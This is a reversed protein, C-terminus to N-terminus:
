QKNEINLQARDPHVWCGEPWQDLCMDKDQLTDIWFCERSALRQADKAPHDYVLPVEELITITLPRNEELCKIIASIHQGLRMKMIHGGSKFIRAYLNTSRGCYLCNDGDYIAYIGRNVTQKIIRPDITIHKELAWKLNMNRNM